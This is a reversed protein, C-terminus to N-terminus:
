MVGDSYLEQVFNDAQVHRIIFPLHKLPFNMAATAVNAAETIRTTHTAGPGFGVNSVLNVSPIIILGNQLWCSFTWQYDWTDIEGSYTKDLMQTWYQVSKENGLINFLLGKDRIQPWLTMTPDYYKWARRWGAWGWYHGFKSYYYSYKPQQDSFQFNCGSIAMIREDNRYRELMEQCYRFFTPHPVTDDELIIVEELKQFIWNFGSRQRTGMGLNIDSYNKIVECDWDVRDIIARTAACKEKDNPRDVHPGDAIVLLKPPKASRIQEFITESSDIRNYIFFAVPTTLKFDSM